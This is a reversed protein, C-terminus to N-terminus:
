RRLRDSDRVLKEDAMIASRAMVVLIMCVVPWVASWPLHFDSADPATQKSFVILAVYWIVYVFLSVSCLMAQQPRKKFLFITLTNLAAAFLLVLFQVWSYFHSSLTVVCLIVALLLFLTQKRQWM